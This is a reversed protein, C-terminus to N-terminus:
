AELGADADREAVGAELELHHTDVGQRDRESPDERERREDRADVSEGGHVAALTRARQAVRTRRHTDHEGAVQHRQEHEPLDLGHRRGEEHQLPATSVRCTGPHAVQEGMEDAPLQQERPHQPVRDKSDIVSSAAVDSM